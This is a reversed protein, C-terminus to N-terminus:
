QTSSDHVATQNRGNQKAHYLAEDAFRILDSPLQEDSPIFSAVGLSVTVTVARAEKPLEISSQAIACRIKEALHFAENLLANPVLVCFEEGGYRACLDSARHVSDNLVAGVLRLCDDGLQHGFRDNFQKFHDVDLMILALPAKQRQMRSWEKALVTDFERRNAIGTLGDIKSLKALKKNARELEAAKTELEAQYRELELQKARLEGERALSELSTSRFLTVARGLRGIEDEGTEPLSIELKGEAIKQLANSVRALREILDPRVHFFFFLGMLVLGVVVSGTLLSSYFNQTSVAQDSASRIENQGREVLRVVESDILASIQRNQEMLQEIQDLMELEHQRLRLIGKESLGLRELEDILPAIEAHLNDSLQRVNTRLKQFAEPLTILDAIIAHSHIQNVSAIIIVSIIETETLVQSIPFRSLTNATLTNFKGSQLEEPKVFRNLFDADGYLIRVYPLLVSQLTQQNSILQSQVEVIQKTLDIRRASLVRLRDLNNTLETTGRFIDHADPFDIQLRELGADLKQHAQEIRQYVSELREADVISPIVDSAVVLTDVARAISLHTLTDPLQKSVIRDTAQNM